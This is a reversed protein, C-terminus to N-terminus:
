PCYSVDKMRDRYAQVYQNNYHPNRHRFEKQKECMYEARDSYPRSEQTQKNKREKKCRLCYRTQPRVVRSLELIADCQRCRNAQM